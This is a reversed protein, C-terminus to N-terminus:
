YGTFFPPYGSFITPVATGLNEPRTKIKTEYGDDFSGMCFMKREM